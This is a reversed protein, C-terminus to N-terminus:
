TEIIPEKFDEIKLLVGNAGDIKIRTLDFSQEKNFVALCAENNALALKLYGQPPM